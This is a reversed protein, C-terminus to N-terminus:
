RLETVTIGSVTVVDDVGETGVVGGLTVSPNTIRGYVWLTPDLITATAGPLRPVLVCPISGSELDEVVAALDVQNGESGFPVGGSAEYVDPDSALRRSRRLVAGSSWGYRVVRHIPGLETTHTTGDSDASSSRVTQADSSWTWDPDDLGLVEGVAVVGASYVGGPCAQGAAASVRLYRRPADSTPYVVLVGGGACLVGATGNGAESGDVGELTIRVQQKGASDTWFGASNRLIRRCDGDLDFTGGRLANRAIRTAIATTGTRPIVTAGVRTWTLGTGIALDLTGLTTWGTSGDDEELLWEGPTGIVLLAVAGGSWREGEAGQDWVLLVESDDTAEWTRRPSPLEMPDLAEVPHEHGAPLEVVEGRNTPGGSGSLRGVDEGSSTAFPVPYTWGRGPVTRGFAHGLTRTAPTNGLDTLGDTGYQWDADTAFGVHRWYSHGVALVGNGWLLQDEAVGTGAANTVTEGVAWRVWTLGDDRSYWATMTSRRVALRIQTFQGTMSMSVSQRITAGDRLQIGDSGIDVAAVYRHGATTQLIVLMEVGAGTSGITALDASGSAGIRVDCAASAYAGHNASTAVYTQAQGATTTLELSPIAGTLSVTGTGVVATWQLNGPASIPLYLAGFSDGSSSDPLGFGFRHASGQTAKGRGHSVQSWGGLRILQVTGDTSANGITTSVVFVSGAAAVLVFPQVYQTTSSMAWVGWGYREWTYGGDTSRWCSLEDLHGAGATGRAYAYITGDYDAVAWCADYDITSDLTAVDAFAARPSSAVAAKLDSTVGDVYVWVFGSPGLVPVGSAAIAAGNVLEWTVGRDSSAYQGSTGSIPDDFAVMLWDRDGDPVVRYIGDTYGVLASDLFERSYQSWTVGGDDSSYAVQDVGSTVGAGSWLLLLGEREDYTLGIPLLLGDLSGADWDYLTTWTGTRPDYSWTQGNGSADVAVIVITQTETIVTAAYSTWASSGGWGDAPATWGTVLVPEQWSRYDNTSSDSGLRLLVEAGERGPYSGRLTAATLDISQAASIQPRWDSESVPHGPVPGAETYSSQRPGAGVAALTATAVARSFLVLGFGPERTTTM